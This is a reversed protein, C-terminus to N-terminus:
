GKITTVLIITLVGVFLILSGAVVKQKQSLNRIDFTSRQSVSDQNEMKFNSIFNVKQNSTLLEVLITFSRSLSIEALTQYTLSVDYVALYRLHM